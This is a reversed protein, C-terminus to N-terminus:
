GGDPNRNNRMLDSISVCSIRLPPPHHALWNVRYLAEAGYREYQKNLCLSEDRIKLWKFFIWESKCLRSIRWFHQVHTQNWLFLGRPSKLVLHKPPAWACPSHHANVYVVCLLLRFPTFIAGHVSSAIRLPYVYVASIYAHFFFSIGMTYLFWKELYM